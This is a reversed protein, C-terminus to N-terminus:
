GSESNGVRRGVPRGFILAVHVKWFSGCTSGCASWNEASAGVNWLRGVPRSFAKAHVGGVAGYPSGCASQVDGKEIGYGVWLGVLHRQM